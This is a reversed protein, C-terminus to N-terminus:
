SSPLHQQVSFGRRSTNPEPHANRGGFFQRDKLYDNNKEETEKHIFKVSKPGKYVNTKLKGKLNSPKPGHNSHHNDNVPQSLLGGM